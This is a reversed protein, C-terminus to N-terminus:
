VMCAQYACAPVPAACRMLSCARDRTCRRTGSKANNCAEMAPPRRDGGLCDMLRMCDHAPRGAALVRPPRDCTCCVPKPTGERAGDAAAPQRAVGRRVRRERGARRRRQERLRGRRVVGCGGGPQGSGGPLGGAARQLRARGASGRVGPLGGPVAGSPRRAIYTGYSRRQHTHTCGGCPAAQVRVQHGPQCNQEIGHPCACPPCM